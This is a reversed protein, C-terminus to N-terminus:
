DNAYDTNPAKLVSKELGEEGRKDELEKASFVFAKPGKGLAPQM